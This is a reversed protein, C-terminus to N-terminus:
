RLAVPLVTKIRSSGSLGTMIVLQNRPIELDINKLNNEKAGKIIIKDQSM